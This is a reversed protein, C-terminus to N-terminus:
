PSAEIVCGCPRSQRVCMYERSQVTCHVVTLPLLPWHRRKTTRSGGESANLTEIRGVRGNTIYRSGGEEGLSFWCHNIVWTPWFVHPLPLSPKLNPSLAIHYEGAGAWESRPFPRFCGNANSFLKAWLRNRQANGVHQDRHHPHGASSCRLLLPGSHFAPPGQVSFLVPHTRKLQIDYGLEPFGIIYGCDLFAAYCVIHIM